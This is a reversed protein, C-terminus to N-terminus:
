RVRLALRYPTMFKAAVIIKAGRRMV